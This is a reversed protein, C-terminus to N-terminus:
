LTVSALELYLAARRRWRAPERVDRDLLHRIALKARRMARYRRYFQLLPEPPTDGTVSAYTQFVYTGVEPAELRDCELSLFTLEDAPDAVRLEASFELCDIIAPEARVCIHEPRLDGHGDVIRRDEVRRDLMDSRSQLFDYQVDAINRIAPEDLGFAPDMLETVDSATGLAFRRRYHSPTIEIPQADKYFDALCQAIPALDPERIAHERILADLMRQPPLRRMWVLWEVAPGASNVRLAGSSSANVSVVDLYTSGALRRNLRVEENCDHLRRELTTFDLGEYRVPKKLKYAFDDALFVWSVHTEITDIRSPHEPYAKPERLAAVKADIGLDGPARAHPDASNV